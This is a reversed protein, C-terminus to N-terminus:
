FCLHQIFIFTMDDKQKKLSYRNDEWYNMLINSFSNQSHLTNYQKICSKIGDRGLANQDKDLCDELGDSFLLIFDEDSLQISKEKYKEDEQMGLPLGTSELDFCAKNICAIPPHHGANVYTFVNTQTNLKGYVVPMYEVFAKDASLIGNFRTLADQPSLSKDFDNEFIKTFLVSNFAAKIGHGIADALLFGYEHDSCKFYTYYDGSVIESPLYKCEVLYNSVMLPRSPLLNRQVKAARLIDKDLKEKEKIIPEQKKLLTDKLQNAKMLKQHYYNRDFVIMLQNTVSVLMDKDIQSYPRGDRKEGLIFIGHLTNISRVSFVLTRPHIPYKQISKKISDPIDEFCIPEELATLFEIFPDSDNLSHFCETTNLKSLKFLEEKSERFIFFSEKTDIEKKLKDLILNMVGRTNNIMLLDRSISLILKQINYYGNLFRKEIPNYIILYLPQYLLISLIIFSLFLPLSPTELNPWLIFLISNILGLIFLSILQSSTRSFAIKFDLLEHKTTAYAFILIMILLSIAGFPYIPIKFVPFFTTGGGNLGILMAISLYLLQNKTKGCAQKYSIFLMSVGRFILVFFLVPFFYYLPGPDPYYQFWTRSSITEVFLSPFSIAVLFYLTTLGYFFRVETLRKQKTFSYVFHLFFIPIWIASINLFRGWFLVSHYSSTFFAWFLGLGWLAIFLSCLSLTQNVRSSPSKSIM